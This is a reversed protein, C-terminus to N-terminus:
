TFTDAVPIFCQPILVAQLTIMFLVARSYTHEVKPIFFLLQDIPLILLQTAIEVAQFFVPNWFLVILAM